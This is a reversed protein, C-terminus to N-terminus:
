RKRLTRSHGGKKYPTYKGKQRGSREEPYVELEAMEDYGCENCTVVPSSDYISLEVNNSGCKLCTKKM